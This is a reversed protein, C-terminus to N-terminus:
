VIQFGSIVLSQNLSFRGEYPPDLHCALLTDRTPFIKCQGKYFDVFNMYIEVDQFDLFEGTLAYQCKYFAEKASFIVTVIKSREAEAVSSLHDLEQLTCIYPYLDSTIRGIVEADLGLSRCHNQRAVVAACYGDTHTISGVIKHPWDPRRDRSIPLACNKIGFEALARRACTRGTAFEEIRKWSAGRVQEIESPFLLSPDGPDRMEAAVMPGVFLAMVARSVAASGFGISPGSNM